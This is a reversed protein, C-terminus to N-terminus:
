EGLLSSSNANQLEGELGKAQGVVADKIRPGVLFAIGVVAVAILIYEMMGQAEEDNWFKKAENKVNSILKKM